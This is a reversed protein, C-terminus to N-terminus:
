YYADDPPMQSTTACKGPGATTTGSPCPYGM